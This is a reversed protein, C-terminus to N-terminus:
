WGGLSDQNIINDRPLVKIIIEETNFTPTISITKDVGSSYVINAEFDFRKYDAYLTECLRDFSEGSNLQMLIYNYKKNIFDNPKSQIKIYKKLNDIENAFSVIDIRSQMVGDYYNEWIKLDQSVIMKHDSKLKINDMNINTLDFLVFSNNNNLDFNINKYEQQEFFVFRCPAIREILEKDAETMESIEFTNYINYEVKTIVGSKVKYYDRENKLLLMKGNLWKAYVGYKGNLDSQIRGKSDILQNIVCDVVNSNNYNHLKTIDTACKEFTVYGSGVSCDRNHHFTCYKFSKNCAYTSSNTHFYFMGQTPFSGNQSLTFLVYNFEVKNADSSYAIVRTDGGFSDIPRIVCDNFTTVNKFPTNGKCYQVEIVTTYGKGFYNIKYAALTMDVLAYITHVGNSLYVNADSTIRTLAYDISRYPNNASGSTPVDNGKNIDVYIDIM